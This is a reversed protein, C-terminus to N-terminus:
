QIKQRQERFIGRLLVIVENVEDLNDKTAFDKGEEVKIILLFAEKGEVLLLDKENEQLPHGIKLKLERILNTLNIELAKSPRNM